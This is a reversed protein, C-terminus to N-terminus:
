LLSRSNWNKWIEYTRGAIFIFVSILSRANYLILMDDARRM